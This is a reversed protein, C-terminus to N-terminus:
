FLRKLDGIMQLRRVIGRSRFICLLYHLLTPLRGKLLVGLVIGCSRNNAMPIVYGPDFPDFPVLERGRTARIINRAARHGGSLSFQVSMRLPAAGRMFLAANGAAFCREDIRLYRDVQVRGQRNREVPIARVFESTHVGAAWVLLARDFTEGSSLEVEGGGARVVSTKSRLEIGMRELNASVYKRIAGPLARVPGPGIESVLIRKRAGHARAHAWINAAAEIGTYGGGAVVFTDHADEDLLGLIRRADSVSDLKCANREIETQGHFDTESGSAILLYDYDLAGGATKVRREALDAALVTDHVFSFGLRRTLEDLRYTLLDPGAREGIVDPLMPLFDFTTRRDVLVVEVGRSRRLTEAAALGAFGGGIIVVKNM